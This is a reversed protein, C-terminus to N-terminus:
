LAEQPYACCSIHKELHGRRLFKRKCMDCEFQREGTHIQKHKRLDKASFFGKSCFPCV